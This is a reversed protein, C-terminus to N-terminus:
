KLGFTCHPIDAKPVFCVHGTAMDAKSEFRVHPLFNKPSWQTLWISWHCYAAVVAVAYFWSM